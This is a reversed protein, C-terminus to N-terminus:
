KLTLLIDPFFGQPGGMKGACAERVKLRITQGPKVGLAAYPLSARVVAGSVPVKKPEKVTGSAPLSLLADKNMWEKGYKELTVVATHAAPQAEAGACTTGFVPHELCDELTGYFELGALRPDFPQTIGTKPNNDADVFFELVEYSARAPPATLTAAFTLAVGDSAIALKLVDFGPYKVEKEPGSGVSERYVIPEVDGAPDVLEVSGTAVKTQLVGGQTAPAAPPTQWAGLPAGPSLLVAVSLVGVSFAQITM